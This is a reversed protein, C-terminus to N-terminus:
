LRTLIPDALIQCNGVENDSKRKTRRAKEIICINSVFLLCIIGILNYTGNTNGFVFIVKETSFQEGVCTFSATHMSFFYEVNTVIIM